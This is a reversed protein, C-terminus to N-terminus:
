RNETHLIDLNQKWRVYLCPQAWRLCERPKFVRRCTSINAMIFSVFARDDPLLYRTDSLRKLVFSRDFAPNLLLTM